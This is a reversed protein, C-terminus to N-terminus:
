MVNNTTPFMYTSAHRCSFYHQPPIILDSLIYRPESDYTYVTSECISYYRSGTLHPTPIFRTYPLLAVRRLTAITRVSHMCAFPCFYFLLRPQSAPQSASCSFPFNFVDLRWRVTHHLHDGAMTMLLSRIMLPRFRRRPTTSRQTLEGGM